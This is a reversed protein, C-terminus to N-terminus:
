APKVKISIVRGLHYSKTVSGKNPLEIEFRLFSRWDADGQANGQLTFKVSDGRTEAGIIHARIKM